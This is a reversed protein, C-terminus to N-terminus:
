NLDWDGVNCQEYTNDGVAVVTGDAKVGVTHRHGADVQITDTWGSVNCQGDLNWGTAIATGDAKVGVTHYIGAAVQIINTWSGVNCQGDSNSGVAVVTGDAKLGVTHSGGAAVMPTVQGQGMAFYTNLAMASAASPSNVASRTNAHDDPLQVTASAGAVSAPLILSFVLVISFLASLLIKRNKM